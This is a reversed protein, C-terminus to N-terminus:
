KLLNTVEAAAEKLADRSETQGLAVSDIMRNFIKAIETDDPQPWSFATLSQKAFIAMVADQAQFDVLDKRATPLKASALYNAAANKATAFVLFDWAANKNGSSQMVAGASYSAFNVDLYSADQRTDKVQPAPSLGYNIASKQIAPWDKAYGLFMAARGQLFATLAMPMRANWTYFPEASDAFGTYFDLASLGPSYPRGQLSVSKNFAAEQNKFDVMVTGTQLMLLSLIDAAHNINSALGLAAGARGIGGSEDRQVTRAVVANFDDWIRPPSAVGGNNFLSKNYYLALTDVYFPAGYVRGDRVLDAVAVEVFADRFVQATILSAPAPSLKALHKNTWTNNIAAIDPGNGAALANILDKEYTASNKQVYNVAVNPNKTKYAQIIASWPEPADLGWFMLDAAVVASPKRGFVFVVIGILLLLGIVSFIIIRYKM